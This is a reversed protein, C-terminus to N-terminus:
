CGAGTVPVDKGDVDSGDPACNGVVGKVGDVGAFHLHLQLALRHRLNYQRQKAWEANQEESHAQLFQLLVAGVTFTTRSARSATSCLSGRAKSGFNFCGDDEDAPGPRASM